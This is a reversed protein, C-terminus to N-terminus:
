LAQRAAHLSVVTLVVMAVRAVVLLGQQTMLPRYQNTPSWGDLLPNLRFCKEGRVRAPVRERLGFRLVSESNGAALGTRM